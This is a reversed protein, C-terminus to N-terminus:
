NEPCNNVFLYLLERDAKNTKELGDVVNDIQHQILKGLNAEDRTAGFFRGAPSMSNPLTEESGARIPPFLRFPEGKAEKVAAEAIRTDMGQLYDAKVKSFMPDPDVCTTPDHEASKNYQSAEHQCWGYADVAPKMAPNRYRIKIPNIGAGEGALENRIFRACELQRAPDTTNNM